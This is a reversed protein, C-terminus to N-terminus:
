AAHTHSKLDGGRVPGMKLRILVTLSYSSTFLHGRLASVFLTSTSLFMIGLLVQLLELIRHERQRSLANMTLCLYKPHSRGKHPSSSVQSEITAESIPARNTLHLEAVPTILSLEPSINESSSPGLLMNSDGVAPLGKFIELETSVSEIEGTILADEKNALNDELQVYETSCEHFKKGPDPVSTENDDLVIPKDTHTSSAERNFNRHSWVRYAVGRNHSEAQLHM